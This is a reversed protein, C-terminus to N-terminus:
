YKKGAEMDANLIEEKTLGFNVGIKKITEDDIKGYRFLPVEVSTDLDEDYDEFFGYTNMHYLEFLDSVYKTIKEIKKM